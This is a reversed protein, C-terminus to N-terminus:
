LLPLPLHLRGAVIERKDHLFQFNCCDVPDAELLAVQLLPNPVIVIHALVVEEPEEVDDELTVHIKESVAGACGDGVLELHLPLVQLTHHFLNGSPMQLITIVDVADARVEADAM